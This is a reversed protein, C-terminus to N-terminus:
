KITKFPTEEAPEMCTYVYYLFVAIILFMLVRLWVPVGGPKSTQLSAGHQV